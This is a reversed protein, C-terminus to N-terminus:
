EELRALAKRIRVKISGATEVAQARELIDRSRAREDPFRCALLALGHYAWARVFRNDATGADRLFVTLHQRAEEPIKLHELYQLVHLKAEWGHFSALGALHRAELADSLPPGGSDFHRKLLWTAGTQMGSTECLDVLSEPFAPNARCEEFLEELPKPSKGDWQGIIDEIRRHVSM